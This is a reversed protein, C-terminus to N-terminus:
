SPSRMASRAAASANSYAGPAGAADPPRVNDALDVVAFMPSPNVDLVVLEGTPTRKIDIGCFPLGCAEGAHRAVEALRRDAVVPHIALENGRYDLADTLMHWAAVVTGDLLYLRLDDGLIRAQFLAPALRLGDRVADLDEVAVCSGGGAIPKAVVAGVTAAFARLEDIQDTVM